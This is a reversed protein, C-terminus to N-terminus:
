GEGCSGGGGDGEGCSGGWDRGGWGVAGWVGWVCVPERKVNLALGVTARQALLQGAAAYQEARPQLIMLEPAPRQPGPDMKHLHLGPGPDHTGVCHGFHSGQIRHHFCALVCCICCCRCHCHAASPSSHAAATTHVGGGGGDGQCGLPPVGPAAAQRGPLDLPIRPLEQLLMHGQTLGAEIESVDQRGIGRQLCARTRMRTSGQGAPAARCCLLVESRPTPKHHTRTAPLVPQQHWTHGMPQAPSGMGLSGKSAVCVM